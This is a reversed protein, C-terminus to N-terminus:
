IFVLNLKFYIDIVMSDGSIVPVTAWAMDLSLGQHTCHTENLLFVM